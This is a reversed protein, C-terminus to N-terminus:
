RRVEAGRHLPEPDAAGVTDDDVVVARGAGRRAAPEHEAVESRTAERDEVAAELFPGRFAARRLRALRDRSSAGEGSLLPWVLDDGFALDEGAARQEVRPAALPEFSGSGVRARANLRAVDGTAAVEREAQEVILIPGEFRRVLEPPQEGLRPDVRGLGEGRGATRSDGGVAQDEGRM